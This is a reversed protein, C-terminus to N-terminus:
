GKKKRRKRKEKKRRKAKNTRPGNLADEVLRRVCARREEDDRYEARGSTGTLFPLYTGKTTGKKEKPRIAKM